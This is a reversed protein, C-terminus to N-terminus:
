RFCSFGLLALLGSLFILGISPSGDFRFVIFLLSIFSRIAPVFSLFLCPSGLDSKGIFGRKGYPLKTPVGSYIVLHNGILRSAPIVM